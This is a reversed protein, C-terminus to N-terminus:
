GGFRATNATEGALYDATAVSTARRFEALASSLDDWATDWSTQHAHYAAQASGQWTAAMPAIDAKLEALRQGMAAHAASLDGQATELAGFTVRIQDAM